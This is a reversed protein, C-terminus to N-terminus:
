RTLSLISTRGYDPGGIERGGIPLAQGGAQQGQSIAAGDSVVLTPPHELLLDDRGTRVFVPDALM